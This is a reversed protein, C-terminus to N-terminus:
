WKAVGWNHAQHQLRQHLPSQNVGKAVFGDLREPRKAFVALAEAQTAFRTFVCAGTGSMLAHGFQSLWDVANKVQPFLKEVLPQCDNKGGEEFSARVKIRKSDRTLDKHAFIEATSVHCNPALVLYWFPPIEVPSLQEGVGEAWASRGEVFVPVDAGLQKGILSLENIPVQTQWLANLGLLTSAADSSGGGIGGGCPLRKILQMKAGARTGTHERLAMAARYVLNDATTVGPLEPELSLRGSSDSELILEDGYDLLQFLTQLQHYGDERRGTINLCLNLKAPCPLRLQPM